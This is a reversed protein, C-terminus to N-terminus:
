SETDKWFLFAASQPFSAPSRKGVNDARLGLDVKFIFLTLFTRHIHRRPLVIRGNKLGSFHSMRGKTKGGRPRYKHIFCRASHLVQLLPLLLLSPPSFPHILPFVCVFVCLFKYLILRVRVSEGLMVLLQHDAAGTVM